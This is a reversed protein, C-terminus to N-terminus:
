RGTAISQHSRMWSAVHSVQGAYSAQSDTGYLGSLYLTDWETLGSLQQTSAFLALITHIGALAANERIHSLSIMSLYDGLQGASLGAVRNADVVIVIQSFTEEGSPKLRSPVVNSYSPAGPSASNNLLKDLGSGVSAASIAAANVTNVSAGMSEATEAVYFWRVPKDESLFARLQDRDLGWRGGALQQGKSAVALRVFSAAAPSILILTNTKCGPNGTEAGVNRAVLDIRRDIFDDFASPLGVTTPCVPVAWRALRGKSDTQSVQKVQAESPGAGPATVTVEPVPAQTGLVSGQLLTLGVFLRFVSGAIM